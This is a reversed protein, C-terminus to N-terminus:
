DNPQGEAEAAVDEAAQKWEEIERQRCPECIPFGLWTTHARSDCIQCQETM